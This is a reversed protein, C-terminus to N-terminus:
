LAKAMVDSAFVSAPRVYREVTQISRHGSRQMIQFVNAGSEVATTIMGARLSHPAFDREDLGALACARKVARYIGHPMLREDVPAATAYSHLGVFLPGEKPHGRKKLMAKLWFVPDTSQRKGKFIGIVRGKAEQDTKGKSIFVRVGQPVFTLDEINLASLESRRMGSAFGLLLLARDRIGQEDHPLHSVITRMHQPTLAAKGQPKTGLERAAGSMLERTANNVPSPLDAAKHRFVIAHMRRNVTAVKWRQLEDALFFRLTEPKAPLSARGAEACWAEFKRWDSAYCSSTKPARASLSLAAARARLKSVNVGMEFLALQEAEDPVQPM